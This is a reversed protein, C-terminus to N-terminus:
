SWLISPDGIRIWVDDIPPIRSTDVCIISERELSEIFADNIDLLCRIESRKFTVHIRDRGDIRLDAQNGTIVDIFDVAFEAEARKSSSPNACPLGIPAGDLVRLSELDEQRAICVKGVVSTRFGVM